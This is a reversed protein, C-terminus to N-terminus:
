FDMRCSQTTPQSNATTHKISRNVFVRGWTDKEWDYELVTLHNEVLRVVLLTSTWEPNSSWPPSANRSFAFGSSVSDIGNWIEHSGRHTHGRLFLIVNKGRLIEALAKSSESDICDMSGNGTSDPRNHMALIIPTGSALGALDKELWKLQDGTLGTNNVDGKMYPDLVVFHVGKENFSYYTSGYRAVFKDRVGGRPPCDHNGLVEYHRISPSLHKIAQAFSQSKPLNPSDWQTALGDGTIDGVTILFAPPGLKKGGLSKPLKRDQLKNIKALIDLSTNDNRNVAEFHTDSWAIFVLNQPPQGKAFPVTLLLLLVALPTKM